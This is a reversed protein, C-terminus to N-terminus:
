IEVTEWEFFDACDEHGAYGRPNCVVRTKGIVYDHKQHTHGHIWLKIHENKVIFNDLKSQYAWNLVHDDEFRPHKSSRSPAHHTVVVTKQKSNIVTEELFHLTKYHEDLIDEPQIARVFQYEDTISIRNYDNLGESIEFMTEKDANNFDTWLTGGSFLTNAILVCDNNLFHFNKHKSFCEKITNETNSLNCLYHEHNGMVYIVNEYKDCCQKIFEAYYIAEELEPRSARRKESMRCELYYSLFIDGALVLVDADPAQALESDFPAVELHLDSCFTIKM